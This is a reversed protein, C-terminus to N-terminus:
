KRDRREVEHDSHIQVPFDGADDEHLVSLRDDLVVGQTRLEFTEDVLVGTKVRAAGNREGAATRWAADVADARRGHTCPREIVGNNLAGAQHSARTSQHSAARRGGHDIDRAELGQAPRLEDRSTRYRSDLNRLAALRACAALVDCELQM